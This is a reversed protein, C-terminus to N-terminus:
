KKRKCKFWAPSRPYWKLDAARVSAHLAAEPAVKAEALLWLYIGLWTPGHDAARPVRNLVIWHAAEHLATPWNQGKPCLRIVPKDLFRGTMARTDPCWSFSRDWLEVRPPALDYHACATAVVRKCEELSCHQESWDRFDNEWSYVYEARPDKGGPM